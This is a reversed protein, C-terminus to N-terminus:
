NLTFLIIKPTFLDLANQSFYCLKECNIITKDISNDM